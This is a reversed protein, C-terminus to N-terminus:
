ADLLGYNALDKRVDDLFQQAEPFVDFAKIFGHIMGPYVKSIAPVNDQQLRTAYNIGHDCIPDCEACYIFAPPLNILSKASMPICYPNQLDDSCSIYHGLYYYLDAKELLCGEAFRTMSPSNTDYDVAPYVLVQFAIKFSQQDRARLTVAAALNGGASDGFVGIRDPDLKMAKANEFVWKTAHYCDDMACPFKHEPAKQYNIAIVVLGTTIALQQAFRDNIGINSVMWGSGHFFLMAGSSARNLSSRPRYIRVPLDASPGAIFHHEITIAQNVCPQVYPAAYELQRAQQPTLSRFPKGGQNFWDDIFQKAHPALASVSNNAANM